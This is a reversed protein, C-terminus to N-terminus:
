GNELRKELRKLKQEKIKISKDAISLPFIMKAQKIMIEVDAIEEAVNDVDDSFEFNSRFVKSIAVILEACEEQLMRLQNSIGYTAIAKELVQQQTM